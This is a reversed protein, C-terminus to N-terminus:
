QASSPLNSFFTASSPEISFSLSSSRLVRTKTQLSSQKNTQMTTTTRGFQSFFLAFFHFFQTLSYVYQNCDLNPRSESNKHSISVKKVRNSHDPTNESHDAVQRLNRDLIKIFSGRNRGLNLHRISESVPLHYMPLRTKLVSSAGLLLISTNSSISLSITSTSFKLETM